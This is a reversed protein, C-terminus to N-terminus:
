GDVFNKPIRHHKPLHIISRREGKYLKENSYMWISKMELAITSSDWKMMCHMMRTDVAKM